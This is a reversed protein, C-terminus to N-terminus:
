ELGLLKRTKWYFDDCHIQLRPDLRGTARERLRTYRDCHVHAAKPGELAQALAALLYQAYFFHAGGFRQRHQQLLAYATERHPRVQETPGYREYLQALKLHCTVMRFGWSSYASADRSFFTEATLLALGYAVAGVEPTRNTGCLLGPDELTQAVSRRLELGADLADQISRRIVFLDHSSGQGPTHFNRAESSAFYCVPCVHVAYLSYDIDAYGPEAGCWEILDFADKRLRLSNKHLLQISFTETGDHAPCLVRRQWLPSRGERNALHVRPKHEPVIEMAPLPEGEAPLPEGEGDAQGAEELEGLAIEAVAAPLHLQASDAQNFLNDYYDELAALRASTEQLRKALTRMVRLSFEPIEKTLTPFQDRPIVVLRVADESQVSATRPVSLILSMEGVLAGPRTIAGVPQRDRIVRLTGSVLIGLAGDTQGQEFITTGAAYTRTYPEFAPNEYYPIPSATM